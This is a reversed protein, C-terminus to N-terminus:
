PNPNHPNKTQYHRLDICTSQVGFRFATRGLSTRGEGLGERAIFCQFRRPLSM